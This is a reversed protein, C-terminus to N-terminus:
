HLMKLIKNNTKTPTAVGIKEVLAQKFQGLNVVTGDEMMIISNWNIILEHVLDAKDGVEGDVTIEFEVCSDFDNWEFCMNIRYNIPKDMEKVEVEEM